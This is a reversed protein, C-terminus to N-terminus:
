CPISNSKDITYKQPNLNASKLLYEIETCYLKNEKDQIYQQYNTYQNKTKIQIIDNRNRRIYSAYYIVPIRGPPIHLKSFLEKIAFYQNNNNYHHLNDTTFYIWPADSLVYPLTAYNLWNTLPNKLIDFTSLITSWETIEHLSPETTIFLHNHQHNDYFNAHNDLNNNHIGSGHILRGSDLFYTIHYQNIRNYCLSSPVICSALLKWELGRIHLKLASISNHMLQKMITALSKRIWLQEERLTTKDRSLLLDNPEYDNDSLLIHHLTITGSSTFIAPDPIRLPNSNYINTNLITDSSYRHYILSNDPLSQLRTLPLPPPTSKHVIKIHRPNFYHVECGKKAAMYEYQLDASDYEDLSVSYIICPYLNKPDNSELSLTNIENDLCVEWNGWLESKTCVPTPTNIRTQAIYPVGTDIIQDPNHKDIENIKIIHQPVIDLTNDINSLWQTRRDSLPVLGKGAENPLLLTIFEAAENSISRISSTFLSLTSPHWIRYLMYMPLSVFVLAVIGLM